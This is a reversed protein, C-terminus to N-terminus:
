RRGGRLVRIVEFLARVWPGKEGIRDEFAALNAAGSAAMEDLVARAKAAQASSATMAVEAKAKELVDPLMERARTVDLDALDALSIARRGAGGGPEGVLDFRQQQLLMASAKERDTQAELLRVQAKLAVASSVGRGGDTPDRMEARDGSPTSAGSMQRMMPNIGARRLDAVEREHATSSMREQFNRNRRAERANAANAWIGGALGIAAAVAPWPM